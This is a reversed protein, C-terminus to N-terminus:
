VLWWRSHRWGTSSAGADPTATDLLGDTDSEWTVTLWDMPVDVDGVVAGFSVVEGQTGVAGDVPATIGCTPSSNPPGVQITTSDRGEKGTSDTVTLTLFHDGETLTVAGLLAGESDPDNFGGTLVGDASSEWVVTLADVADEGDSVVGELTTLQDSYYVGDVTPSTIEAVPADTPQDPMLSPDAPQLSAPTSDADAIDDFDDGLADLEADLDADDIDDGIGYSQGLVDQVDNVDEMMDALDDQLDEIQSLDVKKVEKKLTKSATKMAQVTTLTDKVSDIAFNTQEVNFAQGALQDRQQEYMRKRRLVGM